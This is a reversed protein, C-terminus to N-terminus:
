RERNPAAGLLAARLLAALWDQVTDLLEPGVDERHLGAFVLTRLLALLVDIWSEIKKM